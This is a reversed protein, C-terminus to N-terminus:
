AQKLKVKPPSVTDRWLSQHVHSPPNDPYYPLHFFVQRKSEEKKKLKIQLRYEDPTALCTQANAMAKSFLEEIQKSQYGRDLLRSFFLCLQTNIDDKNSFIRYIRLVNGFVLGSLVGPPHCSHLPINLHLVM